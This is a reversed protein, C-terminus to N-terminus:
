GVFKRYTADWTCTRHEYGDGDPIAAHFKFLEHDGDMYHELHTMHTIVDRERFGADSPILVLMWECKYGNGYSESTLARGEGLGCREYSCRHGAKNGNVNRYYLNKLFDREYETPTIFYTGVKKRGSFEDRIAYMLNDFM